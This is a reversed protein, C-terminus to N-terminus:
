ATPLSSRTSEPGHWRTASHLHLGVGAVQWRREGERENKNRAREQNKSPHSPELAAAQSFPSLTQERVADLVAERQHRRM